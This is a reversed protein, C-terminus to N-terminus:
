VHARGIEDWRMANKLSLMAHDCKDLDKDEVFIRLTIDRGSCTVFHDEIFELDGAVLAFLYCPKRFPDEWTAWHRGDPLDGNAINNGNSLLVPYREKDAVITTVFKAMVDPRDIYYTIKRFGEAECQTCFMKQSKYLGELSTNEQPKILTECELVFGTDIAEGLLAGLGVVTLSDEDTSYNQETLTQDNLKLWVLQMDQGDLRLADQQNGLLEPNRRLHLRSRVHTATEGLEFHLETLEIVFAPLQYDKLYITKAQADRM